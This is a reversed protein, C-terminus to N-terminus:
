LSQTSTQAFGQMYNESVNANLMRYPFHVGASCKISKYQIHEASQLTNRQIAHLFTNKSKKYEHVSTQFMHAFLHRNPVCESHCVRLIFAIFHEYESLTNNCDTWKVM